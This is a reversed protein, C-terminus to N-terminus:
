SLGSAVIFVGIPEAACAGHDDGCFVFVADEPGEGGRLELFARYDIDVDGVLFFGLWM